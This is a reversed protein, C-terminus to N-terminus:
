LDVDEFLVLDRPLGEGVVKYRLGGRDTPQQASALASWAFGNRAHSAIIFSHLEPLNLLDLAVCHYHAYIDRDFVLLFM